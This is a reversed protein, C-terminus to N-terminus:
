AALNSCARGSKREVQKEFIMHACSNPDEFIDSDYSKQFELTEELTPFLVRNVKGDTCGTRCISLLPELEDDLGDGIHATEMLNAFDKAFEAMTGTGFIIDFFKGNHNQAASYAAELNERATELDGTDFGYEELLADVAGAFAPKFALATTILFGTQHQHIGVGFMRPEYRHGTINGDSDKLQAIQVDPWLLSQALFYNNATNLGRDRLDNFSHWTGSPIRTLTANEDYHMFLPNNMVTDIHARIFDEGSGATFIYPLVGGRDGLSTRHMMGQHGTFPKGQNFGSSNDTLLFLFPAMFYLRRVNDMLHQPDKHSVSFQNSKCVAFYTVIDTMDERYPWYMVQYRDGGEVIHALLEKGTKDPLEQFYSRKLGIDAAKDTVIKIKDNTDRLVDRIEHPYGAKSVIELIEGTPENHLWDSGPLRAQAANKLVKNQALSMQNMTEPDFFTIEVEIGAKSDTGAGLYLEFVDDESKIEKLDRANIESM